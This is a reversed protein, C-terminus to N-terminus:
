PTATSTSTPTSTATDTSIPTDTPASTPTQTPTGTSTSTPTQTPTRTATRTATRTPTSTRTATPTSTRTSTATRTRTSTMTSTPTPPGPPPASTAEYRALAFNDDTGNVGLASGAVVLKGDPQLVAAHIADDGGTFDTRLKGNGSFSNDLAGNSRYRALAFNYNGNASARGAAVIRGNPQILVAYAVDSNGAFDTTLKGTGAFSTDLSGDVNYRAMAFDNLGSINASGSAVIKGDAQLAVADAIANIGGFDTALKGNNDFTTDLSGDPNYRALAFDPELSGGIKADGAVIIKGDPQLVLARAVDDGGDIDTLLIGNGDFTNDLTGDTNYRALAFDSEGNIYTASGAVVIKGDGQFAMAYVHDSSSIFDTTVKGGVGFSTDLTGDYNYRALAFDVSSGMDAYGAAVTKGDPQIGVAYAYDNGNNFDTRLKGNGSFITALTGDTNYRALAFDSHGNLNASGAVVIQDIMLAVANVVDDENKFDTMLKGNGSFTLDLDGPAAYSVGTVSINVAMIVALFVGLRTVCLKTLRWPPRRAGHPRSNSGDLNDRKM